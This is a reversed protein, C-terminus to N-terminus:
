EEERRLTGSLRQVGELVNDLGHDGLSEILTQGSRSGKAFQWVLGFATILLLVGKWLLEHDQGVVYVLLCYITAIFTTVLM